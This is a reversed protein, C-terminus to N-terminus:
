MSNCSSVPACVSGLLLPTVPGGTPASNKDSIALCTADTLANRPPNAAVKRPINSCDDLWRRWTPRAAPAAATAEADNIIATIAPVRTAITRSRSAGRSRADGSNRGHARETIKAANAIPIYAFRKLRPNLPHIRDRDKPTTVDSAANVEATTTHVNTRQCHFPAREPRAQPPRRHRAQNEKTEKRNVACERLAIFRQSACQYPGPDRFELGRTVFHWNRSIKRLYRPRIIRIASHGAPVNDARTVQVDEGSPTKRANPPDGVPLKENKNHLWRLRANVQSTLYKDLGDYRARLRLM